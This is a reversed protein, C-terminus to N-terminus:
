RLVVRAVLPQSETMVSLKITLGRDVVLRVLPM